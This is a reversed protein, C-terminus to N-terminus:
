NKFQWSEIVRCERNRCRTAVIETCRSYPISCLKEWHQFFFLTSHKFTWNFCKVVVYSFRCFLFQVVNIEIKLKSYENRFSQIRTKVDCRDLFIITSRWFDSIQLWFDDSIETVRSFYFFKSFDPRDESFM